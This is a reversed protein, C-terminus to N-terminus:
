LGRERLYDAAAKVQRDTLEGIHMNERRIGAASCLNAVKAGGWRPQSKLLYELPCTILYYYPAHPGDLLDSVKELGQGVREKIRARNLRIDQARDLAQMNQPKM